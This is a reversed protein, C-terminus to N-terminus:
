LSDKRFRIHIHDDHRAQTCTNALTKPTKLTPHLHPELLIHQVAPQADLLAIMTKTLQTNLQVEPLLSQYWDFDWRMKLAISGFLRPLQQPDCDRKQPPPVYGWYGFPSPPSKRAKSQPDEWLFALDVVNGKAHNLHPLMHVYPIPFGADLYQLPYQPAIRQMSQKLNMMARYGSIHVYNRNFLCTLKSHAQLHGSCPLPHMNWLPSLWPFIFLSGILYSILPYLWRKLQFKWGIDYTSMSLFPWVLVGGIQTGVSLVIVIFLRILIARVNDHAFPGKLYDKM